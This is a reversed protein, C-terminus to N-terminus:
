FSEITLTITARVDNRSRMENREFSELVEVDTKGLLGQPDKVILAGWFNAHILMQLRDADGDRFFLNHVRENNRRNLEKMLRVLQDQAASIQQSLESDSLQQTAMNMEM